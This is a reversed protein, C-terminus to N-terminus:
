SVWMGFMKFFANVFSGTILANSNQNYAWFVWGDPNPFTWRLNISGKKVLLENVQLDPDPLIFMELPWVPRMSLEEENAGRNLVVAEVCEEIEAANQNGQAIGILIPGDLIVIAQATPIGIWYDMRIIRYDEVLVGGDYNNPLLVCDLGALAGLPQGNIHDYLITGKGYKGFGM